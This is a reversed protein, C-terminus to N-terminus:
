GIQRPSRVFSANVWRFRRGDLTRIYHVKEKPHPGDEKEDWEMPVPESTIEELLGVSDLYNLPPKAARSGWYTSTELVMDGVAPARMYEHSEHARPTGTLSLSWSHYIAHALETALRETTVDENLFKSESM